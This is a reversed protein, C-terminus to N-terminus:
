PKVEDDTIGTIWPVHQFNGSTMLDIPEQLLLTVIRRRSMKSGAKQDDVKFSEIM